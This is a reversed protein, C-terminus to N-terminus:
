RFTDAVGQFAENGAVVEDVIAQLQSDSVRGSQHVAHRARAYAKDFGENDLEVELRDLAHRFAAEEGAVTTGRDRAEQNDHM